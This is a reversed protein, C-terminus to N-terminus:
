ESVNTTVDYWYRKRQTVYRNNKENAVNPIVVVINVIIYALESTKVM